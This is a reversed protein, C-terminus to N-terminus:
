VGHEQVSLSDASRDRRVIRALLGGFFFLPNSRQQRAGCQSLRSSPLMVSICMHMVTWFVM